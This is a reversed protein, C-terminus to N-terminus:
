FFCVFFVLFSTCHLNASATIKEREAFLMLCVEMPISISVCVETAIANIICSISFQPGTSYLCYCQEGERSDGQNQPLSPCGFDQATCTTISDAGEIIEKTRHFLHGVMTRHQVPLLM